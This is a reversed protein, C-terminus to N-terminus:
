KALCWPGNLLSPLGIVMVSAQFEVQSPLLYVLWAEINVLLGPIRFSRGEPWHPSRVPSGLRSEPLPPAAGGGCVGPHQFKGEEARSCSGKAHFGGLQQAPANSPWLQCTWGDPPPFSELLKLHPKNNFSPHLWPGSKKSPRCTCAM